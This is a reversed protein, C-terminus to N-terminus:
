DGEHPPLWLDIAILLLLLTTLVGYVAGGIVIAWVFAEVPRALWQGAIDAILGLGILGLMTGALRRPLGSAMALLATVITLAALTLAHTHTSTILIEISTPNIDRSFAVAEVDPWFMLPVEPCADEGTAQAQHCRVCCRDLIEAPAADGLDLNDYDESIRDGGLWTLLIERDAPALEEAPKLSLEAPHNRRLASILPATTRVGHYAGRIDDMSLGPREDRNQHHFHIQALSAAFGALMVLILCTMGCKGAPHLQRM